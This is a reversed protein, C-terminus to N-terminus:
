GVGGVVGGDLEPLLHAHLADNERALQAEILDFLDALFAGVHLQFHEHVARQTNGVRAAAQQRAVEVAAVGVLAGAGVGAAPVVLRVVGVHVGVSALRQALGHFLAEVEFVGLVVCVVLEGAGATVAVAVGLGIGDVQQFFLTAGA